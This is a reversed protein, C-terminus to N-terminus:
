GQCKVQIGVCMDLGDGCGTSEVEFIQRCGDVWGGRDTCGHGVM